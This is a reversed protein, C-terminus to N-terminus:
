IMGPNTCGKQQNSQNETDGIDFQLDVSQDIHFLPLILFALCNQVQDKLVHISVELFEDPAEALGSLVNRSLNDLYAEEEEWVNM